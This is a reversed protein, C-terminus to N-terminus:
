GPVWLKPGRARGGVVQVIFMGVGPWGGATDEVSPDDTGDTHSHYFAMCRDAGERLYAVGALLTEWDLQFHLGARAAEINKGALTELFVCQRENNRGLVIGCCEAPFVREAHQRMADVAEMSVAIAVDGWPAPEGIADTLESMAGVNAQQTMM